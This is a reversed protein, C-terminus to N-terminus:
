ERIRFLMELLKKLTIAYKSEDRMDLYLRDRLIPPIECDAILIPVIGIRRTRLEKTIAINLERKVWDSKVSEPSLFIAFLDMQEVASGVTGVLSDGPKIEGEDMWLRVKDSALDNALRRVFDKDSHTYSLFISPPAAIQKRHLAELYGRLDKLLAEPEKVETLLSDILNITNKRLISLPSEFQEEYTLGEALSALDAVVRVALDSSNRFYHVTHREQLIDKFETLKRLLEPNKEMFKPLIPVDDSRLYTLCPLGIRIAEDYEMHTYSKGTENVISGYRHGVIGIYVDSERVRDLSVEIPQRPDAGFYEMAVHQYQLHKVGELVLSREDKLDESTSSIFVRFRFKDQQHKTM